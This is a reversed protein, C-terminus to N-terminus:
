MTYDRLGVHKPRQTRPLLAITVAPKQKKQELLFTRAFRVGTWSSTKSTTFSFPRNSVQQSIHVGIASCKKHCFDTNWGIFWKSVVFSCCCMFINYVAMRETCLIVNCVRGDGPRYLNAWWLLKLSIYLSAFIRHCKKQTQTISLVTKRKKDFNWIHLICLFNNKNPWFKGFYFQSSCDRAWIWRPHRRTEGFHGINHSRFKEWVLHSWWLSGYGGM